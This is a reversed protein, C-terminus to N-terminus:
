FTSILFAVKPQYEMLSPSGSPSLPHLLPEEEEEGGFYIPRERIKSLHTKVNTIALSICIRAPKSSSFLRIRPYM